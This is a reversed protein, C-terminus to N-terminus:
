SFASKISAYILGSFMNILLYFSFFPPSKNNIRSTPSILLIKILKKNFFILKINKFIFLFLFLEVGVPVSVSLLTTSTTNTLNDHM